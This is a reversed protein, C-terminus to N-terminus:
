PVFGFPSCLSNMDRNMAATWFGGHKLYELDFILRGGYSDLAPFIVLKVAWDRGDDTLFDGDTMPYQNSFTELRQGTFDAFSTRITLIKRVAFGHRARDLVIPPTLTSSRFGGLYGGGKLPCSRM